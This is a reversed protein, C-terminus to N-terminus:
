RSRRRFCRAHPAWSRRRRCTGSSTPSTTPRSRPASVRAHVHMREAAEVAVREASTVAALLRGGALGADTGAKIHYKVCPHCGAGISAGVAVLERQEMSLRQENTAM